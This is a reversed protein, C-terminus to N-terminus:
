MITLLFITLKILHWLSLCVRGEKILLGSVKYAHINVEVGHLPPLACPFIVDIKIRYVEQTILIVYLLYLIRVSALDMAYCKQKRATAAQGATILSGM